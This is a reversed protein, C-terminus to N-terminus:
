GHEPRRGARRARWRARVGLGAAAVLALSAWMWLMRGGTGAISGTHLAESWDTPRTGHWEGDALRYRRQMPGVAGAPLCTAMAPARWDLAVLDHEGCDPLVAPAAPEDRAAPPQVGYLGTVAMLAWLGAGWQAVLVHWRLPARRSVRRARWGSLLLLLLGAATALVLWSGGDGLGLERHLRGLWVVPDRAHARSGLARDRGPDYFLQELRGDPSSALALAADRPTAPPELRLLRHDPWHRAFGDLLAGPGARSARAEGPPVTWLQPALVRDIERAFSLAAGSVAVVVLPLLLPWVLWRHWRGPLRGSV